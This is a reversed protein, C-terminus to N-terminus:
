QVLNSSESIFATLNVRMKSNRVAVMNTDSVFLFQSNTNNIGSLM